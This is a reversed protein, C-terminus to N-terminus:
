VAVSVVIYKQESCHKERRDILPQFFGSLPFQKECALHYCNLGGGKNESVHACFLTFGLDDAPTKITSTAKGKM